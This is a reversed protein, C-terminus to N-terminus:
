SIKVHMKFAVDAIKMLMKERLTTNEIKSAIKVAKRLLKRKYFNDTNKNISAVEVLKQILMGAGYEFDHNQDPYVKSLLYAKRYDGMDEFLPIVSVAIRKKFTPSDINKLNSCVFYGLTHGKKYDGLLIYYQALKVYLGLYLDVIKTAKINGAVLSKLQQTYLSNIKNEACIKLIDLFLNAKYYDDKINVSQKLMEQIFFDSVKANKIKSYNEFIKFLITEKVYYDSLENFHYQILKDAGEFDLVEVFLSAVDVAIISKIPQKIFKNNIALIETITRKASDVDHLRMYVRCKKMLVDIACIQDKIKSVNKELPSILSRALDVFGFDIYKNIIAIQSWSKELAVKSVCDNDTIYIDTLFTKGTKVAELYTQFFAQAPYSKAQSNYTARIYQTRDVVGIAESLINQATEIRGLKFYEGAIMNLVCVKAFGNNISNSKFLMFDLLRYAKDFMRAQIACDVVKCLAMLRDVVSVVSESVFILDELFSTAENFDEFEVYKDVIEELFSRKDVSDKLSLVTFLALTLIDKQSNLKLKTYPIVANRLQSISYGCACARGLSIEVALKSNPYKSIIEDLLGLATKYSELTLKYNKYKFIESQSIIRNAQSFLEAEKSPVKSCGYLNLSVMLLVIILFTSKEKLQLFM